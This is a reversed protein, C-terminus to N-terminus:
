ASATKTRQGPWGTQALPSCDDARGNDTKIAPPFGPNHVKRHLRGQKGGTHSVRLMSPPPNYCFEGEDV